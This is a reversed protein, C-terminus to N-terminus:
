VKEMADKLGEGLLNFAMVTLMIAMGPYLMLQPQTQIYGKSDSLMVGWEPAPPQAGLGIFSYGAIALIIAGVELTALIIVPMLVHMVIHNIVIRRRSCGASQAALIFDQEKIQVVMGRILRAYGAWWLGGLALILNKVSPGLLGAVALALITGPFAMFLDIIRMIAIDVRGGAYGALLGLPLGIALMMGLILLSYLLSPRTGWIIRSVICRGLNDTGLWQESNPPQLKNELHVAVPDSPALWPALLATLCILAVLYLGAAAQRNQWVKSAFRETAARIGRNNIICNGNM